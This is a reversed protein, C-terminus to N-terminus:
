FLSILLAFTLGAVMLFVTNPFVDWIVATVPRYQTYSTGLDGQVLKGLWKVLQVYVPQDLGLSHRINDLQQQTMRGNRAFLTDPGGPMLQAFLFSLIAVGFLLPIAGLLRRVVFRSM